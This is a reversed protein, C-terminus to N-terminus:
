LKKGTQDRGARVVLEKADIAQAAASGTRNKGKAGKIGDGGQPLVSQDRGPKKQPKQKFNLQSEGKKSFFETQDWFAFPKPAYQRAAGKKKRQKPIKERGDSGKLGM